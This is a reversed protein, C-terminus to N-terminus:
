VAERLEAEIPGAGPPRVDLRSDLGLEAKAEALLLEYMPHNLRILRQIARSRARNWLRKNEREAPTLKRKRRRKAKTPRSVVTRGNVAHVVEMTRAQELLLAACDTCAGGVMVGEVHLDGCHRCAEHGLPVFCDAGTTM